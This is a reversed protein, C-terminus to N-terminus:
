PDFERKLGPSLIIFSKQGYNVSNRLFSSDKDKALIAPRTWQKHKLGRAQGQASCRFRAKNIDVGAKDEFM